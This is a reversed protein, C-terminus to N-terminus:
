HCSECTVGDDASGRVVTAHCKVCTSKVDYPDAVNIAKAFATAKGDNLQNLANFHQKGKGDGDRTLSWEKEDKHDHCDVCKGRGVNARPQADATSSIGLIALAALTLRGVRAARTVIM